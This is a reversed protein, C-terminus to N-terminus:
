KGGLTEESDAKNQDASNGDSSSPVSTIKHIDGHEVPPVLKVPSDMYGLPPINPVEDCPVVLSVPTGEAPLLSKPAGAPKVFKREEETRQGGTEAAGQRQDSDEAVKTEVYVDRVVDLSQVRPCGASEDQANKELLSCARDLVAEVRTAVREEPLGSNKELCRRPSGPKEAGQRVRRLEPYPGPDKGAEDAKARQQRTRKAEKAMTLLLKASRKADSASQVEGETKPRFTKTPVQSSVTGSVKSTSRRSGQELERAANFAPVQDVSAFVSREVASNSSNQKPTSGSTVAVAVARSRGTYFFQYRTVEQLACVSLFHCFMDSEEETVKVKM